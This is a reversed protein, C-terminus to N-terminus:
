DRSFSNNGKQVHKSFVRAPLSLVPSMKIGAVHRSQCIVMAEWRIFTSVNRVYDPSSGDFTACPFSKKSINLGLKSLIM